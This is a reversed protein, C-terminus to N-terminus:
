LSLPCIHQPCHASLVAGKYPHNGESSDHTRSGPSTLETINPTQTYVANSIELGTASQLQSRFSGNNVASDLDQM